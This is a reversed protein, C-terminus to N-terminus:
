DQASLNGRHMRRRLISRGLLAGVLGGLSGLVAGGLLHGLFVFLANLYLRNRADDPDGKILKFVGVCQLVILGIVLLCM